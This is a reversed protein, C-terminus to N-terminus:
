LNAMASFTVPVLFLVITFSGLLVVFDWNTQKVLDIKM